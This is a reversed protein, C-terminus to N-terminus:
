SFVILFKKKKGRQVLIYKGNILDNLGINLEPDKVKIQNISLSNEKLARRVEGKSALFGTKDSLLDLIGIGPEIDNINLQCLPVGEFVSLFDEENLSKLMENTGKGFLIASSKIAIDYDKESHVRCTLDRALAKQLYRENPSSNHKKMLSDVESKSFLTFIKIYKEADDDSTNIWFQYFQYPSTKAPDLWINGQETKGFKGGDSKTVLPCTLAFAEKNNKRRVLEVGTTMNGWQDSGGMQLLCNDSEALYAFDFAQLLQYSFETFSIGTELRNKVSDKAMMYSVTIHKGIDRLFEISGMGKFWDYNNIIKAANHKLEFDLFKSLQKKIGEINQEIQAETLLNREQSKGSPDGIMGTAGGVLAIPKHGFRQFQVLLMIPLLSGIHLSDSTPDFGIYATAGKDGLYKETGPTMDHILGRWKLEKLFESMKKIM